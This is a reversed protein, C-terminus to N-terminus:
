REPGIQEALRRVLLAIDFGERAVSKPVIHFLLPMKFILIFQENQRWKFIKSWPVNSYGDPSSLRIGDDLLEITIPEQIAKYQRYLQRSLRPGRVFLAIAILIAFVTSIFAFVPVAAPHKWIALGLLIIIIGRAMLQPASPRAILNRWANLRAVKAFDDETIRYQAKLSEPMLANEQRYGLEHLIQEGNQRAATELPSHAPAKAAALALDIFFV